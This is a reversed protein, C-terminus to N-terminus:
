GRRRHYFMLFLGGVILLAAPSPEPIPIFGVLDFQHFTGEAFELSLEVEQGAYATVNAEFLLEMSDTRQSQLANGNIYVELDSDYCWRLTGANEPVMGIQSLGFASREWYPSLSHSVKVGYPPTTSGGSIEFLSLISAGGGVNALGQFGSRNLEDLFVQSITWGQFVEEVPAYQREIQAEPAKFPRLNTLDPEDFTLNVFEGAWIAPCVLLALLPRKM